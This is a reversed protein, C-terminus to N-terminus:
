ILDMFQGGFFNELGLYKKKPDPEFTTLLSPTLERTYTKKVISKITKKGKILHSVWRHHGDILLYKKFKSYYVEIPENTHLDWNGEKIDYIAARLEDNWLIIDSLKVNIINAELLQKFRKM